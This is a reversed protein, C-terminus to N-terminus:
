DFKRRIVEPFQLFLWSSSEEFVWPWSLKRDLNFNFRILCLFNKQIIRFNFDGATWTIQLIISEHSTYSSLFSVDLHGRKFYHCRRVPHLMFCSSNAHGFMRWFLCSQCGGRLNESIINCKSRLCRAYEITEKRKQVRNHAIFKRVM